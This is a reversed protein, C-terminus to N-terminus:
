SKLEELFNEVNEILNKMEMPSFVRKAYDTITSKGTKKGQLIALTTAQHPTLEEIPDPENPLSYGKNELWKFHAFFSAKTFDGDKSVLIGYEDKYLVKRENRHQDILIDGIKVNQFKSTQTTTPM